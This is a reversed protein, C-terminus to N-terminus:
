PLAYAVLQPRGGGSATKPGGAPVLVTDGAIAITSNASTPLSRRYVVAGTQLNLAVLVGGYLTTFVLDNSVTAGGLPMDSFKTDWEVKGSALSLAELEGTARAHAPTGVDAGAVESRSKFRFPLDVTAVFVSGDAVALNSLVGGLSGPEYTFPVKPPGQRQLLRRSDADHGNHRGVPTKWILAGTTANVAYVIGMKGSGIVAPAGDATTLIPSTEMDYDKFDDPVGQFYWRLRGTAADLNVDSDTYPLASPHQIASSLSQYPNGTGYTVSGDPAVLPTEWAGGAVLVGKHTQRVTNFRWIVKGTAASLAMLVGGHPGTGLASALYVRGDAVQPQIGFTGQDEALLGRDVWLPRGSSARLAFVTEPSTGYVIGGSVAVGDPGLSKTLPSDVRYEWILRGSSLSLAYVNAYLDQLYVVGNLVIPSAALSGFELVGKAAKGTIRYSWVRRLGAVNAASITSTAADRTNALDANPYPWSAAAQAGVTAGHELNGWAGLLGLVAAAALLRTLRTPRSGM